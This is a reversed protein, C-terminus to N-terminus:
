HKATEIIFGLNWGNLFVMKSYGRGRGPINAISAWKVRGWNEM